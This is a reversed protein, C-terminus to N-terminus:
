SLAEYVKFSLQLRADALNADSVDIAAQTKDLGATLRGATWLPQQLRYLQLQKDGRYSPDSASPNVQELSVSPTPFFQQEAVRRDARSVEVQRQQTLVSPHTQLAETMVEALTVAHAQSLWGLCGLFFPGLRMVM